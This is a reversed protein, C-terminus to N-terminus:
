AGFGLWHSLWAMLLCGVSWPYGHIKGLYQCTWQKQTSSGSAFWLSDVNFTHSWFLQHSHSLLWSAVQLLDLVIICQWCSAAGWPGSLLVTNHCTSPPLVRSSSPLPHSRSLLPTSPLRGRPQLGPTHQTVSSDRFSGPLRTLIQKRWSGSHWESVVLLNERERDGSFVERGKWVQQRVDPRCVDATQLLIGADRSGETEPSLCRLHAAM